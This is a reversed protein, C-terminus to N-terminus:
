LHLARVVLVMVLLDTNAGTIAYDDASPVIDYHAVPYILQGCWTTESM